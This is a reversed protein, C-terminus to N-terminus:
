LKLKRIFKDLTSQEYNDLMPIYWNLDNVFNELNKDTDKITYIKPIKKNDIIVINHIKKKEIHYELVFWNLKEYPYVTKDIQLAQKWTTIKITDNSKTIYYIYWGAVVFVFIWWTINNSLVSLVVVLLIVFAFVFYRTKTRDFIEWDYVKLEM